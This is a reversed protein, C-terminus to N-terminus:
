YPRTPESIHILSLTFVVTGIDRGDMVVGKNEGIKRQQAVMETRVVPIASVQSVLNSVPMDRIETEVNEGNLFTYTQGNMVRLDIDIEKLAKEVASNNEIDINQRLFYLTVARYM